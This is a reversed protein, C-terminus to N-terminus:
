HSPAVQTRHPQDFVCVCQTSQHTLVYANSHRHAETDEADETRTDHTDHLHQRTTHTQTDHTCTQTGASRM